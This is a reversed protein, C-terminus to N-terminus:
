EATLAHVAPADHRACLIPNTCLQEGPKSPLLDDHNRECRLRRNPGNWHWETFIGALLRLQTEDRRHQFISESDNGGSHSRWDEPTARKEDLSHFPDERVVDIPRKGETVHAGREIHVGPAQPCEDAAYEG